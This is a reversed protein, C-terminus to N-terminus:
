SNEIDEVFLILITMEEITLNPEKSLDLKLPEWEFEIEIDLIENLEKTFTEPNELTVANGDQVIEGDKKKAHKEILKQKAKFYIGSEIELKSFLKALWFSTKATFEKELLGKLDKRSLAELYSNKIKM